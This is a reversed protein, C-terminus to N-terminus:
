ALSVKILGIHEVISFAGIKASSSVVLCIDGDHTAEESNGNVAVSVTHM